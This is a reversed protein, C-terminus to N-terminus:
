PNDPYLTFDPDTAIRSLLIAPSVSDTSASHFTENALGWADGRKEFRIVSLESTSADEMATEYYLGIRDRESKLILFRGNEIDPMMGVLAQVQERTPEPTGPPVNLYPRATELDFADMANRVKLYIAELEDRIGPM